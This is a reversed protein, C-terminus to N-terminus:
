EPPWARWREAANAQSKSAFATLMGVYFFLPIFLLCVCTILYFLLIVGRYSPPSATVGYSPPLATVGVNM